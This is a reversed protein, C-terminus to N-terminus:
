IGIDEVGLFQNGAVRVTAAGAALANSFAIGVTIQGTVNPVFDASHNWNTRQGALGNDNCDAGRKCILTNAASVTPGAAWYSSTSAPVDGGAPSDMEGGAFIAYRRGAYATFTVSLATMATTNFGLTVSASTTSLFGVRGRPFNVHNVIEWVAGSYKSVYGTDTEYILKGTYLNAGTPRTGSTCSECIAARDLFEMQDSIATTVDVIEPVYARNTSAPANAAAPTFTITTSGAVAVNTVTFLTDEREVDASTMLRFKNGVALTTAANNCIMTTTTGLANATAKLTGIPLYLNLRNTTAM